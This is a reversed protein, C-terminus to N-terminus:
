PVPQVADPAHGKRALAWRMVQVAAFVAGLVLFPIDRIRNGASAFGLRLAAESELWVVLIMGTM